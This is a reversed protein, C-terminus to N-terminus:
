ELLQIAMKGLGYNNPFQDLGEKCYIKANVKDESKLYHKVLLEYSEAKGWSPLYPNENLQEPLAIAKLLLSEAQEGGGYKEPTYFDNSALVYYARLNKPEMAMARKGNKKISRSIFMAKFGKFQISFSQSLALLAYDESNKDRMDDMLDVATDIEEEAKEANKQTVYFISLYYQLYSQWYTVVKNPNSNALNQLKGKLDLLVKPDKQINTQVFADFIKTQIGKLLEKDQATLLSLDSKKPTTNSCNLSLLALCLYPLIAKKM